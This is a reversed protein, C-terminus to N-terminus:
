ATILKFYKFISVILPRLGVSPRYVQRLREDRRFGEPSFSISDVDESIGERRRRWAIVFLRLIEKELERFDVMRSSLSM